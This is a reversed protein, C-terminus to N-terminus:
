EAEYVLCSCLRVFASFYATDPSTKGLKSPGHAMSLSIKSRFRNRRNTEIEGYNLLMPELHYSVSRAAGENFLCLCFAADSYLEILFSEFM